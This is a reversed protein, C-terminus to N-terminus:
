IHIELVNYATFSIFTLDSHYSFFVVVVFFVGLKHHKTYSFSFCVGNVLDSCRISALPKAEPM